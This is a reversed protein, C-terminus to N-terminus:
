KEDDLGYQDVLVDHSHNVFVSEGLPRKGGLLKSFANGLVDLVRNAAAAAVIVSSPVAQGLFAAEHEVSAEEKEVHELLTMIKKLREQENSPHQLLEQYNRQLALEEIKIQELRKRLELDAPHGVAELAEELEAIKREADEIKVKLSQYLEESAVQNKM